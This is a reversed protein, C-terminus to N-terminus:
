DCEAVAAPSSSRGTAFVARWEAPTKGSWRRFARVFSATDQYGLFEAIQDVKLRPDELMRSANRYRVEDLMKRFSCGQRDLHRSMTRVPVGMLAAVTTSSAKGSRLSTEISAYVQSVFCAQPSFLGNEVHAQVVGMLEPEINALPKSLHRSPFSLVYENGSFALPCRFHKHFPTLDPPEPHAFLVQIPSWDAGCLNRMLTCLGALIADGVQDCGAAALPECYHILTSYSGEEMRLVSMQTLFGQYRVLNGLAERVNNSCRMLVGILGLHWLEVREGVLVGFHPCKLKRLCADTLRCRASFSLRNDPDSLLGPNLGADALVEAPDYGHARILAPIQILAGVRLL